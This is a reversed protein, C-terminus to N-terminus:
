LIIIINMFTTAGRAPALNKKPLNEIMRYIKGLNLPQRIEMVIAQERGRSAQHIKNHPFHAERMKWLAEEM